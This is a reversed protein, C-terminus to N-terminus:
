SVLYDLAEEKIDFFAIKYKAILNFAALLIKKIGTIGICASKITKQDFVEKACKKALEIFENSVPATSFDNLVIFKEQSLQFYDRVEGLHKITEQPTKCQSYDVYLIKIGKHHIVSISM